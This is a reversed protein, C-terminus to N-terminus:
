ARTAGRTSRPSLAYADPGDDRGTAEALGARRWPSAYAAPLGDPELGARAVADVLVAREERSVPPVVDLEM